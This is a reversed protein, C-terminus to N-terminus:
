SFIMHLWHTFTPFTVAEAVIILLILANGRENWEKKQTCEEVCHDRVRYGGEGRRNM